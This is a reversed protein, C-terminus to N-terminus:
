YDPTVFSVVRSELDFNLAYGQRIVPHNIFPDPLGRLIAIAREETIGYERMIQKVKLNRSAQGPYFEPPLAIGFKDAIAFAMAKILREHSTFIGIESGYEDLLALNQEGYRIMEEKDGMSRLESLRTDEDIYVIGGSKERLM